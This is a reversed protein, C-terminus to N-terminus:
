FLLLFCIFSTSFPAQFRAGDDGDDDEDEDDDVRTMKVYLRKRIMERM